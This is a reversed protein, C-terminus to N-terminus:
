GPKLHGNAADVCRGVARGGRRACHDEVDGQLAGLAGRRGEHRRGRRAALEQPASPLPGGSEDSLSYYADVGHNRVYHEMFPFRYDRSFM